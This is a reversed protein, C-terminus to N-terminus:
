LLRTTASKAIEAFENESTGIITYRKNMYKSAYPVDSMIAAGGGMKRKLQISHFLNGSAFLTGGGTKYGGPAYKGGQAYVPTGAARLRASRTVPWKSGDPNQQTMFRKRVRALMVAAMMDEIAATPVELNRFRFSQEFIEGFGAGEINVSVTIM